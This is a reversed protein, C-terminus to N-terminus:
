SARLVRESFQEILTLRDALERNEPKARYEDGHEQLWRMEKFFLREQEARASKGPSIDTSGEEKM